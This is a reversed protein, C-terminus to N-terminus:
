IFRFKRNGAHLIQLLKNTFAFRELHIMSVIRPTLVVRVQKMKSLPKFFEQPIGIPAYYKTEDM